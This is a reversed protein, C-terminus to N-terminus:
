YEGSQWEETQDMELIYCRLLAELVHKTQPKGKIETKGRPTGTASGLINDMYTLVVHWSFWM